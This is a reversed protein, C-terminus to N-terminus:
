RLRRVTPAEVSLVHVIHDECAVCYHRAPGPYEDSAFTARSMYEIFRSRTYLRFRTGEYYEESSGDAYSENLVTYGVYNHWVIEFVRSGDTTEIPTCNPIITDGVEISMPPGAPLGEAVALQLANYGLEQIDALFLSRCENIEAIPDEVEVLNAGLNTAKYRPSMGPTAALREDLVFQSNRLVQRPLDVEGGSNWGRVIYLRDFAKVLANM